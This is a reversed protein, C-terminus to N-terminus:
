DDSSAIDAAILSREQQQLSDHAAAGVSLHPMPSSGMKPSGHVNTSPSAVADLSPSHTNISANLSPSAPFPRHDCDSIDPLPDCRVSHKEGRNDLWTIIREIVYPISDTNASKLRGYIDLDSQYRIMQQQVGVRAANMSAGMSKMKHTLLPLNNFYRENNIVQLVADRASLNLEAIVKALRERGDDWYNRYAKNIWFRIGSGPVFQTIRGEKSITDLQM